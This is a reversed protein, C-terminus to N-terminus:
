LKTVELEVPFARRGLAEIKRSTEKLANSSRATIAVDAGARALEVAIGVGIGRSAGTVLVIQGQLPNEPM